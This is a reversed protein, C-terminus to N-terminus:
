LLGTKEVGPVAEAGCGVHQSVGKSGANHLVQRSVFQLVSVHFHTIGHDLLIFHLFWILQNGLFALSLFGSVTFGLHLSVCLFFTKKLLLHKCVM